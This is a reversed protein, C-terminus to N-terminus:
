KLFMKSTHGALVGFEKTKRERETTDMQPSGLRQGQVYAALDHELRLGTKLRQRRM